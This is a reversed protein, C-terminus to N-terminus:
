TASTTSESREDPSVVVTRNGGDEKARMLAADARPIAADIPEEPGLLTVGISVHLRPADPFPPLYREVATRIKEATLRGAAPDRLGGSVLALFEDGGWRALLSPWGINKRVLQGIQHLVQDAAEHGLLGNVDTFGDIDVLLLWPVDYRAMIQEVTRPASEDFGRPTYLGTVLDKRAMYRKSDPSDLIRWVLRPTERGLKKDLERRLRAAAVQEETFAM